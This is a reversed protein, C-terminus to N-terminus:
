RRTGCVSYSMRDIPLSVSSLIAKNLTEFIKVGQAKAHSL